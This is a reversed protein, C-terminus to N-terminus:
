ECIEVIKEPLLICLGNTTALTGDPMDITYARHPSESRKPISSRMKFPRVSCKLGRDGCFARLRNASFINFGGNWGVRNVHDRYSIRVDIDDDNLLAHILVLGKSARNALLVTLFPEFSDFIGLMGACTVVDFPGKKFARADREHLEAFKGVRRRAVDLLASENDIGALRMAPFREHLYLLFDGTACGFDVLSGSDKGAREIMDGLEIFVQKPGTPSKGVYTDLRQKFDAETM